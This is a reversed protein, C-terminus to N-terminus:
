LGDLPEKACRLAKRVKVEGGIVCVRRMLKVLHVPRVFLFILIKLPVTSGFTHRDYDGVEFSLCLFNLLLSLDYLPSSLLELTAVVHVIPSTRRNSAGTRGYM